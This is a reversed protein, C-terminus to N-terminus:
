SEYTAILTDATEMDVATGTGALWTITTGSISYDFGAGQQQHVGNLYLSVAANGVPTSNLTDALAVDCSIAETTVSEQLPTGASGTAAVTINVRDNGVDDAVTVSIGTGDIFNVEPRLGTSAGAKSVDLELRHGHDARTLNSSSGESNTAGSVTSVTGTAVAHQHDRRSLGAGSGEAAADGGNITSIAGSATDVAHAHDARALDTSVGEAAVNTAQIEDTGAGTAVAHEHDRRSLGAGTGEASTDGANVTSITGSTTNTQKAQIAQPM